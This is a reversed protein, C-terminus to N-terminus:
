NNLLRRMTMAYGLHLGEHVMNFKVAHEISNIKVGYLSQYGQYEEFIGSEYDVKFKTITELALKRLDEVHDAEVNGVPVTGRKYLDILHAPIAPSLGSFKYCLIQHSVIVHGLHWILNNKFGAPITNLQEVSFPKLVGLINKRGQALLEFEYNM